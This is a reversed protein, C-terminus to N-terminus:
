GAPSIPAPTLPPADPAEVVPEVPAPAPTKPGAAPLGTEGQAVGAVIVEPAFGQKAAADTVQKTDTGSNKAGVTVSAIVDTDSVGEVKAAAALVVETSLGAKFGAEAASAIAVSADVGASVALNVATTIDIGATVAEAIALEQCSASGGCAAVAKAIVDAASAGDNIESTISASAPLAAALLIGTMLKRM